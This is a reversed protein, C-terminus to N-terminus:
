VNIIVPLTTQDRASTVVNNVEPLSYIMPVVVGTMASILYPTLVDGSSYGAQNFGVLGKRARSIIAPSTTVEEPEQSCVGSADVMQQDM